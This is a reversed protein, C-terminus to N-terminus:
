ANNRVIRVYKAELNERRMKVRMEDQTEKKRFM